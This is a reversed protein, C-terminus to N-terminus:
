CGGDGHPNDSEVDVWLQNGGLQSYIDDMMDQSISLSAWVRNLGPVGQKELRWLLCNIANLHEHAADIEIEVRRLAENVAARVDNTRYRAFAADTLQDYRKRVSAEISVANPVDEVSPMLEAYKRFASYEIIELECVGKARKRFHYRRRGGYVKKRTSRKRGEPIMDKILLGSSLLDDLTGRYTIVVTGGPRCDFYHPEIEISTNRSIHTVTGM